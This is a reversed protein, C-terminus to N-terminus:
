QVDGERVSAQVEEEVGDRHYELLAVAPGDADRAKNVDGEEDPVGDAKAYEGAERVARDHSHCRGITADIFWLHTQRVADPERQEQGNGEEPVAPTGVLGDVPDDGNDTQDRESSTDDADPHGDM